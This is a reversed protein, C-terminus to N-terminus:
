SCLTRPAFPAVVAELLPRLSVPARRQELWLLVALFHIAGEQPTRVLGAHHPYSSGTLRVVEVDVAQLMHQIDGHVLERGVDYGLAAVHALLMRVRGAFHRFRSDAHELHVAVTMLFEARTM